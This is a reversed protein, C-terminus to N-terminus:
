GASEDTAWIGVSFIFSPITIITLPYPLYHNYHLSLTTRLLFNVCRARTKYRYSGRASARRPAAPTFLAGFVVGWLSRALTADIGRYRGDNRRNEKQDSIALVLQCRDRGVARTPQRVLSLRFHIVPPPFPFVPHSPRHLTRVTRVTRVANRPRM